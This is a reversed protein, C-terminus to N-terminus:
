WGKVRVRKEGPKRPPLLSRDSRSVVAPDGAENTRRAKRLVAMREEFTKSRFIRVSGELFRVTEGDPTEIVLEYDGKMKPLAATDAASMTLCINDEGGGLTIGGGPADSLSLRDLRAHCARLDMPQGDEDRWTMKAGYKRGRHITIPYTFPRKLKM